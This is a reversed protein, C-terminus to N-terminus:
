SDGRDQSDTITTAPTRTLAQKNTAAARQRFSKANM